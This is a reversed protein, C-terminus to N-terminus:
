IEHGAGGTVLIFQRIGATKHRQLSILRLADLGATGATIFSSVPRDGSPPEGVPMVCVAKQIM